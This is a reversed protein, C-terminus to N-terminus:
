ASPGPEPPDKRAGPEEDFRVQDVANRRVTNLISPTEEAAKEAADKEDRERMVDAEALEMQRKVEEAYRRLIASYEGIKRFVQPIKEPGVVILAVIGILLLEEYGLTFM